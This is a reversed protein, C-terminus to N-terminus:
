KQKRGFVETADPMDASMIYKDNIDDYVPLFVVNQKHLEFSLTQDMRMQKSGSRCEFYDSFQPMCIQRPLSHRVDCKVWEQYYPICKDPEARLGFGIYNCELNGPTEKISM